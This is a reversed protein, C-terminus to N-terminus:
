RSNGCCTLQNISYAIRYGVVKWTYEKMVRRVAKQVIMKLQATDNLSESVKKAIDAENGPKTLYGSRGHEIMSPNGGTNSAIVVCGSAMGELVVNGLPESISPVCLIHSKLYYKGLETRSKAGYFKVQEQLELKLTLDKLSKEDNGTGILTLSFPFSQQKLLHCARLLVDVGKEVSFRGVYLLRYPPLPSFHALKRTVTEKNLGIDILDLGNPTILLRSREAGVGIALEAQAPSLAFLRDAERYCIPAIARYFATVRPDYMGKPREFIHGHMLMGFPIGTKKRIWRGVFYALTYGHCLVFAVRGTSCFELLPKRVAWAFGLENPVHCFRRLYDFRPPEVHVAQVVGPMRDPFSDSLIVPHFKDAIAEARRIANDGISRGRCAPLVMVFIPRDEEL